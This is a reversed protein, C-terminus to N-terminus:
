PWHLSLNMTKFICGASVASLEDMMELPIVNVEKDSFSFKNATSKSTKLQRGKSTTEQKEWNTLLREREPVQHKDNIGNSISTGTSQMMKLEVRATYQSFRSELLAAYKKEGIAARHRDVLMAGLDGLSAISGEEGLTGDLEQVFTKGVLRLFAQCMTQHFESYM